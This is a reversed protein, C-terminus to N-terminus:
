DTDSDRLCMAFGDPFRGNSYYSIGDALLVGWYYQDPAGGPPPLQGKPEAAVVALNESSWACCDELEFPGKISDDAAPDHLAELEVLQPLRWDTYGGTDLTECFADAEAWPIASSTVLSWITGDVVAVENSSANQADSASILALVLAAPVAFIAVKPATLKLTM